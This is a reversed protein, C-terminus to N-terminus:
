PLSYVRNHRREHNCPGRKAPLVNWLKHRENVDTTEIQSFLMQFLTERREFLTGLKAKATAEKYNLDPFIITLARKQIREVEDSLYQPLSTHFVQCSYELVSRICATYFKILKKLQKLLCIRKSAEQVINRIHVNWRLDKTTTVGLIKAQSVRKFPQSNLSLLEETDPQKTFNIIVEKCKVLNM